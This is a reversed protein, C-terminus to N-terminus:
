VRLDRQDFVIHKGFYIAMFGFLASFAMYTTVSKTLQVVTGMFLTPFVQSLLFTSDLVAFDLGVGRKGPIPGLVPGCPQACNNDGGFHLYGSVSDHKPSQFCAGEEGRAQTPVSGSRASRAGPM